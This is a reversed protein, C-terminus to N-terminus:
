HSGSWHSIRPRRHGAYRSETGILLVMIARVFSAITKRNGTFETVLIHVSAPCLSSIWKRQGPERGRSLWRQVLQLRLTWPKEKLWIISPVSLCGAEPNTQPLTCSEGLMYAFTGYGGLLGASASGNAITLFNRRPQQGDLSESAPDQHSHNSAM